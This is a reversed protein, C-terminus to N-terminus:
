RRVIRDMHSRDAFVIQFIFFAQDPGPFDFLFSGGHFFSLLWFLLCPQKARPQHNGERCRSDRINPNIRSTTSAESNPLLALASAKM